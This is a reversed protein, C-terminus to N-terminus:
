EPDPDFSTWAVAKAGQSIIQTYTDTKSVEIEPVTITETIPTALEYILEVGRMATKFASDSDPYSFDKDFAYIVGTNDIAIGTARTTYIETARDTPYIACLANAIVSSSSTRKVLTIITDSRLRYTDLSIPGQTTYTYDGMDGSAFYRTVTAVGDAFEIKDAVDNVKRLPETLAIDFVKGNSQVYIHYKNDTASLEGCSWIESNKEFTFASYPTVTQSTYTDTPSVAISPVQITETTPTALAYIFVAGRIHELFADLDEEQNYDADYIYISGYNSDVAIGETNTAYAGNATTTNYITCLIDGPTNNSKALKIIGRQSYVNYRYRETDPYKSAIWNLSSMDVSAINRTVTAVGNAFTINDAVSGIKRLPETLPIDYVNVGNSIKVHYYGDQGLDGCSLIVNNDVVSNGEVKWSTLYPDTHVASNGVLRWATLYVIPTPGPRKGVGSGGVSIARVSPTGIRPTRIYPTRINDM